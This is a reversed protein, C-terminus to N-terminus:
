ILTTTSQVGPPGRYIMYLAFNEVRRASSVGMPSGVFNPSPPHTFPGLKRGFAIDKAIASEIADHHLYASPWNRSERYHRPGTYGLRAGYRAQNMITSVFQKDPHMSLKDGLYELNLIPTVKTAHSVDSIPIIEKAGKACTHGTVATPSDATTMNGIAVFKEGTMGHGANPGSDTEKIVIRHSNRKRRM